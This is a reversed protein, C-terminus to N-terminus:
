SDTHQQQQYGVFFIASVRDDDKYDALCVSGGAMIVLAVPKGAAAGLVAQILDQQTQPLAISYRDHGESFM